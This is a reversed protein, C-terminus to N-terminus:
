EQPTDEDGNAYFSGDPNQCDIDAEDMEGDMDNDVGDTCTCNHEQINGQTTASNSYGDYPGGSCTEL